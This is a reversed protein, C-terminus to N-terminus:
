NQKSYDLSLAFVGVGSRAGAVPRKLIRFLVRKEEPQTRIESRVNSEIEYADKGSLPDLAIAFRSQDVNSGLSLWLVYQRETPAREPETRPFVPCIEATIVESAGTLRIDRRGLFQIGPLVIRAAGFNKAAGAVWQAFQNNMAADRIGFAGSCSFVKRDSELPAVFPEPSGLVSAVEPIPPLCHSSCRQRLEEITEKLNQLERLPAEPAKKYNDREFEAHKLLERTEVLEARLRNALSSYVGLGILLPVILIVTLLGSL